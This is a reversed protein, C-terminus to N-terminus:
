KIKELEIVKEKLKEILGAVGNNSNKIVASYETRYTQAMSVGEVIIDIIKYSLGDKTQKVRWVVSTPGAQTQATSKVFFQGKAKSPETGIIEVKEADYEDFRDVWSLICVDTFVKTFEKREAKSAKRWDRGLVFRSVTKLNLYTTFLHKFRKIKEDRDIKANVVDNVANDILEKVFSEAVPNNAKATPTNCVTIFSFVAITLAIKKILNM